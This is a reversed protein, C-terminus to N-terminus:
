SCPTHPDYNLYCPGRVVCNTSWDVEDGNLVKIRITDDPNFSRTMSFPNITVKGSM